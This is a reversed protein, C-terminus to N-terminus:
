RVAEQRPPMQARAEKVIAVFRRALERIRRPQRLQISEHPILATGIGLATAGALIFDGATEQNVGGSAILPIRPYPAKLARIYHPGGVRSCPYIKVFDCGSKWARMVETPTLAGPIVVVGESTSFEVSGLDLGPGTIFKAGADLCRRATKSDTLEGAGIIVDPNNKVLDAIVELAGPVIMTLEVIPIGAASIENAAFIADETSSVRISPIIGIEEIMARVEPKTMSLGRTETPTIAPARDQFRYGLWPETVLYEPQSPNDEIKRRLTRIYTRLYELEGGYEPGWVAQLIKSHAVPVNRREMLYALLNFETPSVHVPEGAKKLTRRELDIEVDGARLIHVVPPAEAKTRRAVARLRAVLERLHFPKTIYDDAGAELAEIKSEESDRVTIMLIGARPLLERIRRCADVGSMGPMNIDLLVLDVLNRRLFILAEEGTGAEEVVFGNGSLGVNLSRRVAPEDDVVMIRVPESSM